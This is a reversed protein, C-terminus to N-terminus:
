IAVVQYLNATDVSISNLSQIDTAIYLHFYCPLLPLLSLLTAFVALYCLGGPLFALLATFASLSYFVSLSYFCFSLLVRFTSSSGCFKIKRSKVRMGEYFTQIEKNM